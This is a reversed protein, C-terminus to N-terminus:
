KKKKEDQAKRLKVIKAYDDPAIVWSKSDRKNPVLQLEELKVEGAGNIKVRIQGKLTGQFEKDGTFSLTQLIQWLEETPPREVDRITGKLVVKDKVDITVACNYQARALGPLAIIAVLGFFLASTFRSMRDEKQALVIGPSIFFRSPVPRRIAALVAKGTYFAAARGNTPIM